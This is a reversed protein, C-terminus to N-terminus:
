GTWVRRKGLGYERKVWNMSENKKLCHPDRQIGDIILTGHVPFYLTFQCTNNNKIMNTYSFSQGCSFLCLIAIMITLFLDSFTYMHSMACIVSSAYSTNCGLM